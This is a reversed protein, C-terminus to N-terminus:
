RDVNVPSQAWEGDIMVMNTDFDVQPSIGGAPATPARPIGSRGFSALVYHTGTSYFYLRHGWGDMWGDMVADTPLKYEGALIALNAPASSHDKRYLDLFLTIKDMRDATIIQKIFDPVRHDRHHKSGTLILMMLMVARM